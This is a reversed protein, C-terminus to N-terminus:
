WVRKDSLDTNRFRKMKIRPDVEATGFLNWNNKETVSIICMVINKQLKHYMYYMVINKHLEHLM